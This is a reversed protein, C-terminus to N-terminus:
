SNTVDQFRWVIEQEKVYVVDLRVPGTRDNDRIWTELSHKLHRLKAPTVYSHLDDIFDISKVEVIVLVEQDFCILDLEWWRMTRNKDDLRIGQDVLRNAVLLEAQAGRAKKSMCFFFSWIKCVFVIDNHHVIFSRFLVWVCSNMIGYKKVRVNLFHTWSSTEWLFEYMNFRVFSYLSYCNQNWVLTDWLKKINNKKHSVIGTKM